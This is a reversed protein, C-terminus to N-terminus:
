SPIYKLLIPFIQGAFLKIEKLAKEEAGDQIPTILRVFSGDTRRRTISDLVLYIKQLYESTIVRGRSQYWYLVIQERMGNKLRFRVAEVQRYNTDNVDIKEITSEVIQWGAGPMCNKPSHILDGERQSQYYGIYLQVPQGESSTYNALFSDDVGLADYIEPAFKQEIGKWAGIQKPFAALPINPVTDESTNVYHLALATTVM